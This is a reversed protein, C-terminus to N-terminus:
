PRSEAPSAPAAAASRCWPRPCGQCRRLPLALAGARLVCCPCATSGSPNEQRAARSKPESDGHVAVLRTRGPSDPSAAAVRPMQRQGPVYHANSLSLSLSLAPPQSCRAPSLVHGQLMEGLARSPQNLAPSTSSALAWDPRHSSPRWEPAVRCLEQKGRRSSKAAGGRGATPLSVQSEGREKGPPRKKAASQQVMTPISSHRSSTHQLVALREGGSLSYWDKRSHLSILHVAM